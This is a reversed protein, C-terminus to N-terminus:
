TRIVSCSGGTCAIRGHQFTARVGGGKKPRVRSTPMGLPGNAGHHKLYTELVNGWLAHAGPSPAYYIRGGVFMIRRCAACSTSRSLGTTTSTPVGLRGAAAGVARFEHDIPGRLWVTLDASGNRYLGGHAFFQQAGGNVVRQKSTPLGPRCGLHDYRSRIPGTITHDSNIWVREDYLGLAAKLQSGSVRDHGNGGVVVATIIRGGGGRRIAGFRRVTGISGTYPALRATLDGAGYRKKWETWPNADTWEGPDCVGTLWRVKYRPDGGHWVDEVSDSHGGDSAAYFAQILAGKYTVVQGATSHAAQVWRSGDSGAERDYGIYVQDSAGDTIDCNCDPRRKYHVLSYAAFTRAAVAQARLAEMPWSAPVEGLGFLYQELGLRAILREACGNADGCGTLNMEITGRAYSFGQYWIADAEPIFVRSGADQYTVILDASPSGWRHGGVLGGSPRRVAWDHKRAIVRWTDGSPIKGVLRQGPGGIWLRVPGSQARLHVIKRGSTLGVRIRDPLSRSTVVKTGRYFHTLIHSHNWGMRALGYSGWQSMGIGHGYGSGFFTFSNAASAPAGLSPLLGLTLTALLSVRVLFRRM